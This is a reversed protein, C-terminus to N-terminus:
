CKGELYQIIIEKAEEWSYCIRCVYGVSRLYEIWNLQENTPKAKGVKMEIFLGHWSGDPYPSNWAQRIPIPLFIDPVGKRTGTAKLKTAEAIHRSGGNPVAFMWKLQPYSELTEPLSAWCFLAMQHGDESNVAALKEPTIIRLDSV